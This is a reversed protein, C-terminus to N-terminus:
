DDEEVESPEGELLYAAEAAARLMYRRASKTADDELWEEAGRILVELTHGDRDVIAQAALTMLDRETNPIYM